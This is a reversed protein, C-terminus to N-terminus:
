YGPRFQLKQEEGRIVDTLMADKAVSMKRVELQGDIRDGFVYEVNPSTASPKSTMKWRADPLEFTYEVSPDVFSNQASIVGTFLLCLGFALLIHLRKSRMIKFVSLAIAVLRVSNQNFSSLNSTFDPM